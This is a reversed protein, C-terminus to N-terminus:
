DNVSLSFLYCERHKSSSIDNIGELYWDRSDINYEM